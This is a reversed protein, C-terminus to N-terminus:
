YQIFPPTNLITNNIIIFLKFIIIQYLHTIIMSLRIQTRHLIMFTTNNRTIYYWHAFNDVPGLEGLPKDGPDCRLDQGM